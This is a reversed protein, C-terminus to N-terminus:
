FDGVASRSLTYRVERKGATLFPKLQQFHATKGLRAFEDELRQMVQSLLTEAWRRDFTKDATLDDAPEHTFRSEALHVDLQWIHLGGGRKAARLKAGENALFNRLSSLLFTRFRGRRRDAVAITNKELLRAFFEQILDQAADASGTRRRVYAYLPYWYTRCLENLAQRAEPKSAEGAALVVSWRTSLFQDGAPASPRHPTRDPTM